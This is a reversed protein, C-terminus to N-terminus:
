HPGPCVNWRQLDKLTHEQVRSARTEKYIQASSVLSLFCLSMGVGLVYRVSM